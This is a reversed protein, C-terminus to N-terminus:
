QHLTRRPLSELGCGKCWIDFEVGKNQKINKVLLAAQKGGLAEVKQQLITETDLASPMLSPRSESIVALHDGPALTWSSELKASGDLATTEEPLTIRITSEEWEIRFRDQVTKSAVTLGTLSCDGQFKCVVVSLRGSSVEKVVAAVRYSDHSWAPHSLFEYHALLAPFIRKNDIELEPSNESNNVFHPMGNITAAHVGNPSFVAGGTDDTYDAVVKETKLDYVFTQSTSPNINGQVAIRGEDLWEIGEVRNIACQLETAEPCIKLSTIEAGSVPDIIVLDDLAISSAIDREFAIKSGDKSWLPNGKPINDNILLRSKGGVVTVFIDNAKRYVSKMADSQASSASTSIVLFIVCAIVNNPAIM